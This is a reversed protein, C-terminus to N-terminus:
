LSAEKLLRDLEAARDDPRFELEVYRRLQERQGKRDRFISKIFAM